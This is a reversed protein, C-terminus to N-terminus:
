IHRIASPYPLSPSSYLWKSIFFFTVSFLLECTKFSLSVLDTIMTSINICAICSLFRISLVFIISKTLIFTVKQNHPGFLMSHIFIWWMQYEQPHKSCIHTSDKHIKICLINKKEKKKLSNFLLLLLSFSYWRSITRENDLYCHKLQVEWDIFHLLFRKLNAMQDQKCQSVWCDTSLGLRQWWWPHRECSIFRSFYFWNPVSFIITHNEKWKRM